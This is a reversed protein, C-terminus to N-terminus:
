FRIGGKTYDRITELNTALRNFLEKMKRDHAAQDKPNVDQLNGLNLKDIEKEMNNHFEKIIKKNPIYGAERMAEKLTLFELSTLTLM